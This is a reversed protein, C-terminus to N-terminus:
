ILSTNSYFRYAVKSSTCPIGLVPYETGLEQYGHALYETGMGMASKHITCGIPECSIKKIDAHGVEM